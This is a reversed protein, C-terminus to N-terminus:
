ISYLFKYIKLKIIYNMFNITEPLVQSPHHLQYDPDAQDLLHRRCLLVVLLALAVPVMPFHHHSLAELVQQTWLNELVCRLFTNVNERYMSCVVHYNFLIHLHFTRKEPHELRQRYDLYELCPHLLPHVLVAQDVLAPQCCLHVLIEPLFPVLPIALAQPGLLLFRLM